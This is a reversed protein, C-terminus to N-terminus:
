TAPTSFYRSATPALPFLEAQLAHYIDPKGQFQVAVPAGSDDIEPMWGGAHPDVFRHEAFRWVDRYLQDDAETPDVKLFTALVGIAETVPWWYRDAIDVTGDPRLTYAFGGDARWADAFAQAVLKRADRLAREGVRGSLDWHQVLLRAMELSHGPTTGAPRFMPNGAYEPDVQWDETYHEPLRWGNAPAMQAIFFDLIRGARHLWVEAGTAEYTALMAEVGHMNANMGRYTSFPSWDRLFEDRLLGRDDDWFHREIIETVDNLLRDADPHGVSKASAAALLVFVHGYALKTTDEPHDDTLSWLYGGHAVDRHHDWLYAMGVDIMDACDPHGFAHGLAYSHVMRTTAHLEQAAGPIPTGDGALAYFGGQPRLSARFFALQRQADKALWARHAPDRLVPGCYTPDFLQSM